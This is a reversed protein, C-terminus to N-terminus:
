KRISCKNTLSCLPCFNTLGAILPIVGLYWWSWSLSGDSLLYGIAIASVGLIIRFSKCFSRIKDFLNM